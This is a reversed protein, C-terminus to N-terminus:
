PTLGLWRSGFSLAAVSHPHVCAPPCQGLSGAAVGFLHVVILRLCPNRPGPARRPGSARAVSGMGWAGRAALRCRCPHGATLPHGSGMAAASSPLLCPRQGGCRGFWTGAVPRLGGFGWAAVCGPAQSFSPVPGLKEGCSRLTCALPAPQRVSSGCPTLGGAPHWLGAAVSRPHLCPPPCRGLSGAAAGLLHVAVPRLGRSVHVPHGAPGPLPHSRSWGWVAWAGASSSTRPSPPQGRWCSHGTQAYCIADAPSRLSRASLLAGGLSEARRRSVGGVRDFWFEGWSARGSRPSSDAFGAGKSGWSAWFLPVVRNALAGLRLM